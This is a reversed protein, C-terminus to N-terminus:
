DDLRNEASNECIAILANGVHDVNCPIGGWTGRILRPSFICSHLGPWHRAPIACMGHPRCQELPRLSTGPWTDSPRKHAVVAGALIAGRARMIKVTGVRLQRDDANALKTAPRM